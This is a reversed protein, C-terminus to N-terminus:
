KETTPRPCPQSAYRRLTADHEKKVKRLLAPTLEIDLLKANEKVERFSKEANYRVRYKIREIERCQLLAQRSVVKALSQTDNIAAKQGQSSDYWVAALLLLLVVITALWRRTPHSAGNTTTWM